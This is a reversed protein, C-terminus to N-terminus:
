IPLDVRTTLIVLRLELVLVTESEIERESVENGELGPCSNEASM